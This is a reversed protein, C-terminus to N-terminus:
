AVMWHTTFRGTQIIQNANLVKYNEAMFALKIMCALKSEFDSIYVFIDNSKANCQYNFVLMANIIERNYIKM